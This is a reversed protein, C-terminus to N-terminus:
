KQHSQIMSLVDGKLQELEELQSKISILLRLKETEPLQNFLSLLLKENDDLERGSFTEAHFEGQAASDPSMFFWHEAKGAAAALRKLGQGRPLSKGKAWQQVAQPSVMAHKAIDSLNWNKEDQLLKLRYVLNPHKVNDM